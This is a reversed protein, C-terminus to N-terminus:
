LVLDAAQPQRANAMLEIGISGAPLLDIMQAAEFPKAAMVSLEVREPGSEEPLRVVVDANCEFAYTQGDRTISLQLRM